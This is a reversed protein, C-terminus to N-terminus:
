LKSFRQKENIILLELISITEKLASKEKDSQETKQNMLITLNKYNNKLNNIETDRDLIEKKADELFLSLKKNENKNNNQDENLQNIEKENETIIQKLEIIEKECNSKLKKIKNM